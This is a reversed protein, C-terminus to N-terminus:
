PVTQSEAPVAGSVASSAASENNSRDVATVTYFYTRGAVVNVDQFAPAPLLDGNLRTGRVGPEESRYVNYGALDTEVSINWSLELNAPEGARAPVYVVVLGQPTAPPFTDRAVIAARNSEGSEIDKGDIRVVSRVSYSYSNGFQIEPDLYSATQTEGIRTSTAAGSQVPSNGQGQSRYIRYSVPPSVAGVPTKTAPTWSLQIGSHTVEGKLDDIPDPLPHIQLAVVNSDASERKASARTRVAYVAVRNPNQSFDGPQLEDVYQFRGRVLYNSASAAPITVRLANPAAVGVAASASSSNTAAPSSEFDRFIEVTPPQSLTRRDVTEEPLTFTLSVANGVQQAALDGVPEPIPAKREIPEGPSACDALALLCALAGAACLFHCAGKILHFLQLLRPAPQGQRINM